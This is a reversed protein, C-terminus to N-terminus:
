ELIYFAISSYSAFGPGLLEFLHNFNSFLAVQDFFAVSIPDRARHVLVHCPQTISSFRFQSLSFRNELHKECAQSLIDLSFLM